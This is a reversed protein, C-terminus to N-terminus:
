HVTYALLILNKCDFIFDPKGGPHILMWEELEAIREPSAIIVDGSNTATSTLSEPINVIMRSGSLFDTSAHTGYSFTEDSLLFVPTGYNLTKTYSGLYSAFRSGLDGSYRCQGVFDGFYAQINIGGIIILLLSTIFIYARKQKQLTIGPLELICDIGIAALLLAAPLVMLMRYSDASPPISFIGIALTPAWFYGNLLLIGRKKTQLIAFVLGVLFLIVSINSLLSFNSGYFDQAPYYILSFFVHTVRGALISIASQGTQAMTLELWGSQFTGNSNLRDFFEHPNRIIYSFEPMVMIAFGGWFAAMQRWTGKFWKWYFVILTITFVFILGLIIQATLYISFHMALIVGAAATMWAKRKELGYLLFFLELPVLWTGHIYGVSGIRSFHIHAHSIALLFSSITAIRRGAVHRAFLYLAPIALFGSIAPLIRLAFPNAGFLRIATHVLQLYIGGFNEWLAFPNTYVGINSTQSFLGLLGEDGDIVRPLDGLKAFRLLAALIMIAVLIFVENRNAKIWGKIQALKPFSDNFAFVYFAGACFWSIIVFDYNQFDKEMFLLLSFVTFGTLIVSLGIWYALHAGPNDVRVIGSGARSKLVIGIIILFVGLLNLLFMPPPNSNFDVPKNFAMYQAIIISIFGLILPIYPAILKRNKKSPERSM